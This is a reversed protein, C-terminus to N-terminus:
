GTASIRRRGVLSKLRRVEAKAILVRKLARIQRKQAMLTDAQPPAPVIKDYQAAHNEM